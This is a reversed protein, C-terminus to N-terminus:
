PAVTGEIASGLPVGKFAITVNAVSNSTTIVTEDRFEETVQGGNPNKFYTVRALVLTDGAAKYGISYSVVGIHSAIVYSPGWVLPPAYGTFDRSTGGLSDISIATRILSDKEKGLHIPPAKNAM